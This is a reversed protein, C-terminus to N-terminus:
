QRHQQCGHRAGRVRSALVGVELPAQVFEAVILSQFPLALLSTPKTLPDVCPPLSTPKALPNACPPRSEPKALPNVFPLLSTLKALPNTCPPLSTPKTLPEVCSPHSSPKALPNPLSSSLVRVYRLLRSWRGSPPAHRISVQNRM